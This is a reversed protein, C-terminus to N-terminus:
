TRAYLWADGGDPLFKKMLGEREFGLMRAWRSHAEHRADTWTEIRGAYNGLWLSVARHLAVMPIDVSLLAWAVVSGRWIPVVGAAGVVKGAELGAYGEHAALGQRYQPDALHAGMAAQAPQLALEALHWEELEVITM